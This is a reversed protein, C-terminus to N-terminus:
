VKEEKEKKMKIARSYMTKRDQDVM